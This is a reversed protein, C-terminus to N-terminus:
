SYPWLKSALRGSLPFTLLEFARKRSDTRVLLASDRDTVDYTAGSVMCAEDSRGAPSTWPM